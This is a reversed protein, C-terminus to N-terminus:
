LQRTLVFEVDKLATAVSDCNRVDGIYSKLRRDNFENRVEQQKKEDRSFVRVEGVNTALFHKLM